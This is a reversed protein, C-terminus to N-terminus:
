RALRPVAAQDASRSRDRWGELLAPRLADIRPLAADGVPPPPPPVIGPRFELEALPALLAADRALVHVPVARSADEGTILPAPQHDGMVVVVTDPSLREAVFAAVADISHAVSRAYQVRVAEPDRWVERPHPAGDTWRRYIAGDGLAAWPVVESVPLWPAHSSILAAVAFVPPRDPPDLETRALHDLAFQDPVIGWYFAPGAYGMDQAEYTADYGLLRGEPWPMTIAPMSQVTRYGARSFDDVLTRPEESLFLAYLTQDDIFRGSSVSAHNLWSQGGASAAVLRGSAVAFGADRVRAEFAALRPAVVQAYAPEDLATVGYSEIFVLVVDRGDLAGLMEGDAIGDAPDRGLDARFAARRGLAVLLGEAQLAVTLSASGGVPRWGPLSELFAKQGGYLALAGAGLVYVTRRAPPAAFLDALRSLGWALAAWLAVLGVLLGAVAGWARVPGLLTRAVDMTAPLLSVDLYLNLPRDVVSRAALDAIRIAVLLVLIGALAHVLVRPVRGLRARVLALVAFAAGVELAFGLHFAGFLADAFPPLNVALSAVFWAALLLAAAALPSSFVRTM